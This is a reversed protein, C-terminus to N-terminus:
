GPGRSALLLELGDLLRALGFEFADAPQEFIGSHHLRTITPFREPTIMRELLPARSDYWEQDGLGTDHAVRAADVARHATGRVFGEIANVTAVTEHDTLGLGSLARFASDSWTVEAPGMPPHATGVQLVWPHRQYSALAARAWTELRSRWSGPLETLLPLEGTVADLMLDVLEAKGPLYTYLSMPAVGLQEALRRMSLAALGDTDALAIATTVIAHTTLKPKPGRTPRQQIGWLLQLSRAPDGSGSHETAM